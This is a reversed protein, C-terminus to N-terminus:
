KPVDTEQDGSPVLIAALADKLVTLAFGYTNITLAEVPLKILVIAEIGPFSVPNPKPNAQDGSPLLSAMPVGCYKDPIPITYITLGSLPFRIVEILEKVFLWSENPYATVHDASPVFNAM